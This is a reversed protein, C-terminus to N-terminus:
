KIKLKKAKSWASCIKVTKKGVKVNKYTCVRVYYTKKSTLKTIKKSTTSNKSVTVTKNGSKFNSKQSYQIMYGSTQSAQKKWKVTMAKKAAKASSVSTGKPLIDFTKIMKGDYYKGTLQVTVTYRGVNKRGSAYTVKYNSAAIAKGDSGTIKVKPTKVKGNYTDVAPSLVIKEPAAIDREEKTDGCEECDISAYGDEGPKAKEINEQFNHRHVFLNSGVSTQYELDESELDFYGREEEEDYTYSYTIATKADTKDYLVVRDLDNDGYPLDKLDYFFELIDGYNHIVMPQVTYEKDDAGRFVMDMGSVGNKTEVEVTVRITGKTEYDTKDFEVNELVTDPRPAVIDYGTTKGGEYYKGTFKISIEYYGVESCEEPYIVTYNDDSIEKGDSGMVKLSPKIDTGNYIYPGEELEVDDPHPIVKESKVEGCAPDACKVVIKGDESTTAKTIYEKFNHIHSESSGDGVSFSLKDVDLSVKVQNGQYRMVDKDDFQYYFVAGEEDYSIDYFHYTNGQMEETLKVTFAVTKEDGAPITVEDGSVKMDAQMNEGSVTKNLSETTLDLATLAVNLNEPKLDIAADTDNKFTVEMKATDGTVYKNTEKGDADVLKMEKIKLAKDMYQVDFSDPTLTSGNVQDADESDDTDDGDDGILQSGDENLSYITQQGSYDTVTAETLKYTGTAQDDLKVDATVTGSCSLEEEVEGDVSLQDGNENTYDLEVNKVGSLDDEYDVKYEVKSGTYVPDESTRSFGTIKPQKKDKEGSASIFFDMKGDYDGLIAAEKGAIYQVVKGDIVKCGYEKEYGEANVIPLEISAFTADIDDTYSGTKVPVKLEETEGAGIDLGRDEDSENGASATLYEQDYGDKYEWNIQTDPLVLQLSKDTENKLTLTVSFETGAAINDATTGDPLNLKYDVALGKGEYRSITYTLDGTNCKDTEDEANVLIKKSADYTYTVENNNDDQILIEKLQYDGTYQGEYDGLAITATGEADLEDECAYEYDQGNSTVVACVNIVQVSAQFDVDLSIEADSYLTGDPKTMTVGTIKPATAEEDNTAQTKVGDATQAKVKDAAEAKVNKADAALVKMGTGGFGPELALVAALLLAMLRKRKM